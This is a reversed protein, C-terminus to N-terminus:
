MNYGFRLLELAYNCHNGAQFMITIWKLIRELRGVDGTKITACFEVYIAMDRIFLIANANTTSFYEFLTEGDKTLELITVNIMLEFAEDSIPGHVRTYPGVKSRWLKTCMASFITRLFEDATYYCPMERNLTRRGLMPIFYALSGPTGVNGYHTSLITSCLLMEMHFLQLVPIAWRIRDFYTIECINRQQASQVRSITLHDGAIIVKLDKFSGKCLNLTRRMHDPVKINGAVTSQDIDMAALEYAETRKAGLVKIPPIDLNSRFLLLHRWDYLNDAV